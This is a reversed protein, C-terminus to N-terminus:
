SDINQLYYVTQELQIRDAEVTDDGCLLLLRANIIMWDDLKISILDRILAHIIVAHGFLGWTFIIAFNVYIKPEL